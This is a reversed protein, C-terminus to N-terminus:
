NRASSLLRDCLQPRRGFTGTLAIGGDTQTEASPFDFRPTSMVIVWQSSAQSSPVYTTLGGTMTLVFRDRATDASLTLTVSEDQRLRYWDTPLFYVGEGIRLRIEDNSNTELTVNIRKLGDLTFLRFTGRERRGVAEITVSRPRTEVRVWPEYLDGTSLFLSECDGVIRLEDAPSTTPLADSRVVLGSQPHGTWNSLRNQLSLYDVLGDGRWALREAALGVAGNALVGFCTLCAVLSVGVSKARHSRGSLRQTLEVAGAFATVALVPLLESTYRFAVYGYAMVGGSIALAGIMPIRLAAVSRARGPRFVAFVGLAGLAFLLPMFATVSGTRYMQDLLAGYHGHAPKAPFTIYPFQPVFRIGDPRFYNVIASPTFQLGDLRGDNLLLALRRHPSVSTWVQNKLPFMWPHRFKAFNVAGGITLAALAAGVAVLSVATRQPSDRRAFWVWVGVAALTLSIAWGATTRTLIAGACCAAVTLCRRLTPTDLLGVMGALAAMSLAISWAYVEHYVFPQSAIYVISSGGTVTALVLASVVAELRTVPDSGRLAARIRWLLTASAAALVIWAVLMSPATLRGDFRDTMLLIPMRLLAPFPPFYMFTKGDIVFGEIGIAGDPVSLHGHFLRRAQIEYFNSAFRQPHATRLPDLRFNWLVLLFPILGGVAGAVCSRRVLRQSEVVGPTAIPEAPTPEAAPVRAASVVDPANM